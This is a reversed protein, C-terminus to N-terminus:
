PQHRDYGVMSKPLTALEPVNDFVSFSLPMAKRNFLSRQFGTDYRLALVSRIMQETTPDVSHM